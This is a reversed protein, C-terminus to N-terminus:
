FCVACYEEQCFHTSRHPLTFDMGWNLSRILNLCGEGCRAENIAELAGNRPKWVLGLHIEDKSRTVLECMVQM